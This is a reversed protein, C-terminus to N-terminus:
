AQIRLDDITILFGNYLEKELPAVITAYVMERFGEDDFSPTTDYECKLCATVAKKYDVRIDDVLEELLRNATWYDTNEGVEGNILDEESRKHEITDELQLELLIVALQLLPTCPHLQHISRGGDRAGDTEASFDTTLCPRKCDISGAMAAVFSINEKDWEKVWKSESFDLLSRALVVSLICKDRLRLKRRSRLLDHLTMVTQADRVRQHSPRPPIQYLTPSPLCGDYMLELTTGQQRAEEVLTCVSDM